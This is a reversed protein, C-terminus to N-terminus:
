GLEARVTEGFGQNQLKFNYNIVGYKPLYGIM